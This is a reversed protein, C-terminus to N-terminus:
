SEAKKLWEGPFRLQDGEDHFAELEIKDGPQLVVLVDLWKGFVGKVPVEKGIASKPDKATSKKWVNKVGTVKLVLTGKEADKSVLTGVLIGRFGQLGAPIGSDVTEGEAEAQRPAAIASASFPVALAIAFVASLIAAATSTSAAALNKM